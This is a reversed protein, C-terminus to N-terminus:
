IHVAEHSRRGPCGLTFDDVHCAKEANTAWQHKVKEWPIEAMNSAVNTLGILLGEFRNLVRYDMMTM